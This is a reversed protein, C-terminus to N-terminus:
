APQHAAPEQREGHWRQMHEAHTRLYAGPKFFRDYFDLDLHHAQVYNMIFVSPVTGPFKGFTDFVYQAQRAVCAKFAPDHIQASGRVRPSDTWAGPTGPHFPGGPGFKREAFAEVAAAMDPYHPPCYAEFVGERGTPNPVPWREDQDYRFGLGPVDSRGSAGLMAFRDIGDFMWGGLGMGQLLLVGAYCATVLEATAETLAYQEAFTLPLPDDVNVLGSFGALGPIERRNVDDYLAHDLFAM